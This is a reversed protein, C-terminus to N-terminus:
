RSSTRPDPGPRTKARDPENRLWAIESLAAPRDKRSAAVARADDNGATALAAIVALHDTTAALYQATPRDDSMLRMAIASPCQRQSAASPRSAAITVAKAHAVRPAAADSVGRSAWGAVGPASRRVFRSEDWGARRAVFPPCAPTQLVMQRRRPERRWRSTAAVILQDCRGRGDLQDVACKLQHVSM